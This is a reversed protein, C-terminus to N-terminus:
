LPRQRLGPVDRIEAYSVDRDKWGLDIRAGQPLVWLHWKNSTDVKRSEAPFIQVAECDEGAIENKIQQFHRWDWIMGGDRRRINLHLISGERGTPTAQVQYIENVYFRSRKHDQDLFERAADEDLGYQGMVVEVLKQHPAAFEEGSIEVLPKWYRPTNM